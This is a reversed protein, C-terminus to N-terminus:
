YNMILLENISGRFEAKSNIMRSASVKEIHFGRYADEFFTDGVDINMPDSNSLMLRAGKGDLERFFAALRLQEEDNFVDKAYSNFNATKSIPRYPPDFYVFTSDDVFPEICSFDGLIIETKKLLQSVARLNEEDLIKPNAYKGFPVNFEGKANVRFLGNFCTRNLFIIQAARSIWDDQLVSFDIEPINKNFETRVEYFNSKRQEEELGLHNESIEKLESILEDVHSQIVKYLLILERNADVIILQEIDRFERAIHFFAAGGGVFPEIYKRIIGNHIGDPLFADIQDLLQTKGGAWKLFPRASVADPFLKYQNM